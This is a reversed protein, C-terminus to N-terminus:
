LTSDNEVRSLANSNPQNGGLEKEASHGSTSSQKHSAKEGSTGNNSGSKSGDKDGHLGHTSPNGEKAGPKVADESDIRKEGREEEKIWRELEEATPKFHMWVEDRTSYVTEGKENRKFRRQVGAALRTRFEHPVKLRAAIWQDTPRHEDPLEELLETELLAEDTM